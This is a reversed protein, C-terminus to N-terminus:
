DSSLLDIALKRLGVVSQPAEPEVKQLCGALWKDLEQPDFKIKTGLGVGTPLRLFPICRKAIMRDLTRVTYGLLTAAERKTLLRPQIPEHKGGALPNSHTM